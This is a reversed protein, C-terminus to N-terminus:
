DAASRAGWRVNRWNEAHRKGIGFEILIVQCPNLSRGLRHHRM